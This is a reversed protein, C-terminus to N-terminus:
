QRYHHIKQQHHHHQQQQQPAAGGGVMRAQNTLYQQILSDDCNGHALVANKLQLVEDRLGRATASLRQHESSLAREMSELDAVALKTKARCKNAAERNRARQTPPPKQGQKHRQQATPWHGPQPAHRTNGSSKPRQQDPTRRASHSFPQYLAATVTTGERPSPTAAPSLTGANYDTTTTTTTTTTTQNKTSRPSRTTQDDASSSSGTFTHLGGNAATGGPTLPGDGSSVVQDPVPRFRADFRSQEVASARSAPLSSCGNHRSFQPGCGSVPSSDYHSSQSPTPSIQGVPPPAWEVPEYYGDMSEEAPFYQSTPSATAVTGGMLAPYAQARCEWPVQPALAQGEEGRVFGPPSRPFFLEADGMGYDWGDAFGGESQRVASFGALPQGGGEGPAAAASDGPSSLDCFGHYIPYFQGNNPAPPQNHSPKTMTAPPHPDTSAAYPPLMTEAAPTRRPVLSCSLVPGHSPNLDPRAM